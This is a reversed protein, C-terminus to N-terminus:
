FRDTLRWVIMRRLFLADNELPQAVCTPLNAVSLGDYEDVRKKRTAFRDQTSFPFGIFLRHLTIELASKIKAPWLWTSWIPSDREDCLFEARFHNTGSRGCIDSQCGSHVFRLKDGYAAAFFQIKLLKRNLHDFTKGGATILPPRLRRGFTSSIM